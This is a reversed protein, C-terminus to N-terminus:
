MFQLKRLDQFRQFTTLLFGQPMLQTVQKTQQCAPLDLNHSQCGTHVDLSIVSCLELFSWAQSETPSTCPVFVGWPRFYSFFVFVNYFGEGQTSGPFYSFIVGLWKQLKETIKEYKGPGACPPPGLAKQARCSGSLIAIWAGFGGLNRGGGGNQRAHSM